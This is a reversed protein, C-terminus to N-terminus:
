SNLLEKLITKYRDLEFLDITTLAKELKAHDLSPPPTQAAVEHLFIILVLFILWKIYRKLHKKQKTMKQFEVM